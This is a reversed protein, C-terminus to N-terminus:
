QKGGDQNKLWGREGLWAQLDATWRHHGGPADGKGLGIGHNLKEYVHLEFPVGRARLASAFLLANEVKVVTDETTHFIFCPATDPKVQKEASLEDVLDPSPNDGLLNQRSGGHTAATMTIVPYCLVGLDPRSSVREVPDPSAADGADFHTLITAALHGGASSGMVGIRHPDLKWETAKSRTLRLARAVDQLMAPHRYGAPGLRYKLVFAAIGRENLWRAYAVGEHDAALGAYGGGPCVVFAAGTAKDPEPLFATLTPVDKDATGLAGPVAGGPWLPLAPQPDTSKASTPWCLSLLLPALFFLLLKPLKM